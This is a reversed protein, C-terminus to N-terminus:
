FLPLYKDGLMAIEDKGMMNKELYNKLEDYGKISMRISEFRGIGSVKDVYRFKLYLGRIEEIRFIDKINITKEGGLRGIHLTNDEVTVVNKSLCYAYLISIFSGLFLLFTPLDFKWKNLFLIYLDAALFMVGSYFISRTYMAVVKYEKRM